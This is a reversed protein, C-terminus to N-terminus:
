KSCDNGGCEADTDIESAYSVPEEPSFDVEGPFAAFATFAGGTEKIPQETPVVAFRRQSIGGGGDLAVASYRANAAPPDIRLM